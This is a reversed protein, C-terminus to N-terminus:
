LDNAQAFTLYNNLLCILGLVKLFTFFPHNMKLAGISATTYKICLIGNLDIPVLGISLIGIQTPHCVRAV